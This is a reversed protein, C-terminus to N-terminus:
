PGPTTEAELLFLYWFCVFINRPIFYPPCKPREVEGGDTLRNHLSHALMSTECGWKAGVAQRLSLKVKSKVKKFVVVLATCFNM